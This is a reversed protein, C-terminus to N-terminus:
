KEAPSQNRPKESEALITECFRLIRSRAQAAAGCAEEHFIDHRAGPLLVTQVPLGAREMAAGLQRVGSGMAGVPDDAGSLLLIPCRNWGALARKGGTRRMASLLELFLAASIDPRCLPDACYRDLAEEDACLWDARTRNPAFKRNYAGFSLKQVLPTTGGPKARRLQGRVIAQIVALVAGPQTGTGALIVGAPAVMGRCLADRLLFSGLSFGLMGLPVGPFSERLRECFRQLDSLSQEWGDPGMDACTRSGPNRGHGRLDFAACAIGHEALAAALTDYRGSHETMGHSIQLVLRPQGDPLWLRAPLETGQAGAFQFETEQM